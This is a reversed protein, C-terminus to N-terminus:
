SNKKCLLVVATRADVEICKDTSEPNAPMKGTSLYVEWYKGRIGPLALEHPEWHMNFVVYVDEDEDNYIGCTLIGVHRNYNELDPYWAKSSHYSVDPQGVYKYDMLYPENTM